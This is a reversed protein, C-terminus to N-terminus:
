IETMQGILEWQRSAHASANGQALWDCRCDDPWDSKMEGFRTRPCVCLRGFHMTRRECDTQASHHVTWKAPQKGASKHCRSRNVESLPRYTMWVSKLWVKAAWSGREPVKLPHPIKNKGVSWGGYWHSHPLSFKGTSKMECSWRLRPFTLEQSYSCEATM